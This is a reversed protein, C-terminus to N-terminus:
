RTATTADLGAARNMSAAIADAPVGTIGTLQTVAAYGAKVLGIDTDPDPEGAHGEYHLVLEAPSTEATWVEDFPHPRAARVGLVDDLPVNPVNLSLVTGPADALSPVAAAALRAATDWHEEDAWALSVAVAPLDLVAATLAAGVTGSHLVLHGTNLGRNVGSAVLEPRPGFAGFWAAYVTAAPQTGLAHVAVGPLEAWEVNQHSIPGSRHLWGIAAGAGSREGDPAVVIVDHGDAVLAHALARLGPAEVGDDNTVLIQVGPRYGGPHRDRHGAASRSVLSRPSM